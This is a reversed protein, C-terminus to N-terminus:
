GFCLALRRSRYGVLQCVHKRRAGLWRGRWASREPLAVDIRVPITQRSGPKAFVPVAVAGTYTQGASSPDTSQGELANIRDKSDLWNISVEAPADIVTLTMDGYGPADKAKATTMTVGTARGSKIASNINGGFSPHRNGLIPNDGLYGVANLQVALLEATVEDKTQNDITIEYIACPIASDKANLPIMPSYVKMTIGLPVDSDKFDYWAFPYEGRFKLSDM